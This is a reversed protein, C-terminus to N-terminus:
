DSKSVILFKGFEADMAGVDRFELYLQKCIETAIRKVIAQARYLVSSRTGQSTMGILIIIIIIINLVETEATWSMCILNVLTGLNGRTHTHGAFLHCGTM